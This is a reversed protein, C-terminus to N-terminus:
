RSSATPLEPLPMWHTIDTADVVGDVDGDHDIWWWPDDKDFRYGVSCYKGDSVLVRCDFEPLRESVPIWNM